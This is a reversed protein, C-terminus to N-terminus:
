VEYVGMFCPELQRRLWEWADTGQIYAVARALLDAPAEHRGTSIFKREDSGTTTTTDRGTTTQRATGTGSDSVTGSHTTADTRTDTGNHTTTEQRTTADMGSHTTTHETEERDTGGHTTTSETAETAEGTVTASEEREETDAGGHTTTTSETRTDTGGETDRLNNYTLTDDRESEGHSGSERASSNESQAGPYTWDLGAAPEAAGPSGSGSAPTYLPTIGFGASYSSSQPNAKDLTRSNDTEAANSWDTGSSQRRESGSRTTTHGYETEREAEVGITHGHTTTSDESAERSESHERTSEAIVGVTHGHTKTSEGTQSVQEGHTVSGSGVVGITEGHTITETGQGTGSEVRVGTRTTSGATEGSRTGIAQGMTSGQSLSERYHQTMWDYTAYGPQIRLMQNYRALDRSLVRRFFRVFDRESETCIERSEYWDTITAQLDLPTAAPFVTAAGQETM